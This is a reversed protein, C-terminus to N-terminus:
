APKEQLVWYPAPIEESFNSYMYDYILKVVPFPRFYGRLERVKGDPGDVITLAAQMLHSDIAGDWTLMRRGGEDIFEGTIQFPGFGAGATLLIRKVSDRGSVTSTLLPTWFVVDESLSHELLSVDLTELAIRLPHKDM